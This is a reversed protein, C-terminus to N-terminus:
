NIQGRRKSIINMSIIEDTETIKKELMIKHYLFLAM